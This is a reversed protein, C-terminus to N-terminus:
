SSRRSVFRAKNHIWHDHTLAGAHAAASQALAANDIYRESSQRPAVTKAAQPPSGDLPRPVILM